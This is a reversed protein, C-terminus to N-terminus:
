PKNLEQVFKVTGSEEDYTKRRVKVGEVYTDEYQIGGGKFYIKDFGHQNDDKYEIEFFPFGDEDFTKYVGNMKGGVFNKEQHVKGNSYYRIVTGEILDDKYPTEEHTRGNEFFTRRIGTFKGKITTGEEEPLRKRKGKGKSDSSLSGDNLSEDVELKNSSAGAITSGVAGGVDVRKNEKYYDKCVLQSLYNAINSKMQKNDWNLWYILILIILSCMVFIFLLGDVIIDANGASRKIIAPFIIDGFIKKFIAFLCFIAMVTLINAKNFIQNLKTTNEKM